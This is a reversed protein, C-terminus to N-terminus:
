GISPVLATVFATAFPALLSLATIPSRLLRADLGLRKVLRGEAAVQSESPVGSRSTTLARRVLATAQVRWELVLPVIIAAAVLAFFVGYGLVYYPPFAEPELGADLRAMRLAGTNLVLTSLLLGLALSSDEICRWIADMVDIASGLDPSDIEESAGDDDLARPPAISAIKGGMAWIEEHTAWVLMIWPAAAVWGLAMLVGIVAVFMSNTPPPALERTILTLLASAAVALATYTLISRYWWRRPRRWEDPLRSRTGVGAIFTLMWIVLSIAAVAAWLPYGRKMGVDGGLWRGIALLVSFAVLAAVTM